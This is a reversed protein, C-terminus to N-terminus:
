PLQVLVAQHSQMSKEAARVIAERVDGPSNSESVIIDQQGSKFGIAPKEACTVEISMPTYIGFTLMGVLYNVFSLQTEVKAVGNPCKSATEVVSPPILGYIWCSAFPKSIVQDSAPLGTEVTARYCGSLLVIVSLLTIIGVRVM